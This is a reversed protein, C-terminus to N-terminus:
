ENSINNAKEREIMEIIEDMEKNDMMHERMMFLLECGVIDTNTTMYPNTLFPYILRRRKKRRLM